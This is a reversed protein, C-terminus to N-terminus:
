YDANNAFYIAVANYQDNGGPTTGLWWFMKGDTRVELIGAMNGSSCRLVVDHNISPRLNAPLTEGSTGTSPVKAGKTPFGTITLIVLRGWKEAVYPIGYMMKGSYNKRNGFNLKSQPNVANNAIKAETIAGAGINNTGFVPTWTTNGKQNMTFSTAGGAGTGSPQITVKGNGVSTINLKNEAISVQKGQKIMNATIDTTGATVTIQGLEVYYATSGSAGDATIATRIATEDPAVPQAAANGSAVILGCAKPNDTVTAEGEPPNNVYAVVSDIRTNSAPAAPITLVIPEQTINDITTRNGLNDQAVAVDRATGNGGVNITMGANPSIGFGSIVGRTEYIALGDNLANVSTRGGFAGNTGISNSPNTM